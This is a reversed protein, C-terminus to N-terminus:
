GRGRERFKLVFYLLVSYFTFWLLLKGDIPLNEYIKAPCIGVAGALASLAGAIFAALVTRFTVGSEKLDCLIGMKGVERPTGHLTRM